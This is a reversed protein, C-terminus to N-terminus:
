YPKSPSFFTPFHVFDGNVAESLQYAKKKRRKKMNESEMGTIPERQSVTMKIRLTSRSDLGTLSAGMSSM